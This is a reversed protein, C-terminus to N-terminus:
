RLAKYGEYANLHQKTPDGYVHLINGIILNHGPVDVIQDLKCLFIVQSEKVAEPFEPELQVMELGFKAVKDTDRGSTKCCNMAQEAISVDPLCVTFYGSAAICGSTHGKKGLAMALMPPNNSLYTWWSAGMVNTKDGDHSTVLVFPNPSNLSQAQSLTIPQM